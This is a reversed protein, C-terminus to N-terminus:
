PMLRTHSLRKANAVARRHIPALGKDVIGSLAHTLQSSPSQAPKKLGFVPNWFSQWATISMRTYVRWVQFAMDNWSEMFAAVKEEGMREFERRDRETQSPGSLAMRAIRHAVVQPVAMALEASKVALLRAKRNDQTTMTEGQLKQYTIDVGLPENLDNSNSMFGQTLREIYLNCNKCRKEGDPLTERMM